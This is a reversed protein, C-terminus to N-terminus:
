YIYKINSMNKMAFMRHVQKNLDYAEMLWQPEKHYENTGYYFEGVEVKMFEKEGKWNVYDFEIKDHPLIEMANM